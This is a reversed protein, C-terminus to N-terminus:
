YFAVRRNSGASPACAHFNWFHRNDYLLYRSTRNWVASIKVPCQHAHIEGTGILRVALFGDASSICRQKTMHVVDSWNSVLCQLTKYSHCSGRPLARLSSLSSRLASLSSNPRNLMSPALTGLGRPARVCAGVRRVPALEAALAVDDRIATLTRADWM